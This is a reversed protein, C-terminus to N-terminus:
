VFTSYRYKRAKFLSMTNNSTPPYKNVVNAYEDILNKLYVILGYKDEGYCWRYFASMWSNAEIFTKQKICPKMNRGQQAFFELKSLLDQVDTPITVLRTIDTM